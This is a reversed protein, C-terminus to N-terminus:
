THCGDRCRYQQAGAFKFAVLRSRPMHRGCHFCSMTAGYAGPFATGVSKSEYRLGGSRIRTKIDDKVPTRPPM